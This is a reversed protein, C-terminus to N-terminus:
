LHSGPRPTRGEFSSRIRVYLIRHQWACAHWSFTNFMGIPIKVVTEPKLEALCKKSEQKPCGPFLLELNVPVEWGFACKKM